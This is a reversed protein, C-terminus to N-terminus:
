CVTDVDDEGVEEAPIKPDAEACETLLRLLEDPSLTGTGCMICHLPEATCPDLSVQSPARHPLVDHTVRSLTSTGDKDFKAFLADMAAQEKIYAGFKNVMRVANEKDVGGDGVEKAMLDAVEDSPAGFRETLLAKFEDVSFTGGGDADFKAYWEDVQAQNRLRREERLEAQREKRQARKRAAIAAGGRGAAM